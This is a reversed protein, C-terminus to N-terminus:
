VGFRKFVKEVGALYSTGFLNTHVMLPYLNYVDKREAFHPAMPCAERYAEYFRDDFGGFLRTFALEMERHGYYVAPDFISPRGSKIPMANGSWLDGHLLAPAEEPFFGELKPRLADLRRLFGQDIKHEYFALGFQPKLRHEFFFDLWSDKQTNKQRLSGIYNDHDLGFQSHSAQHLKALGRGLVEWYDDTEPREHLYELLLYDRRATQGRGVVRPVKIEDSAHEGLLDLGAEEAEFMGDPQEENWKLFFVGLDTDLRVTQNICGGTVFLMSQVSATEGTSQFLVSEFFGEPTDFNM